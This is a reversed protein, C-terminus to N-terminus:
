RTPAWRTTSSATIPAPSGCPRRSPPTSRRAAASASSWRTGPARPRRRRRRGRIHATPEGAPVVHLEATESRNWRSACWGPTAWASSRKTPSSCRRGGVSGGTRSPWAGSARGARVRRGSGRGVPDISALRWSRPCYRRAVSATSRRADDRRHDVRRRPRDAHGPQCPPTAWPNSATRGPGGCRRGPAARGPRTTRWPRMPRRSNTRRPAIMPRDAREDRATIAAQPLSSRSARPWPAPSRRRRRRCPWPPMMLTPWCIGAPREVRDAM